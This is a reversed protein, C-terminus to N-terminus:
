QTVRTDGAMTIRTDGAETIRVDSTPPSPGGGGGMSRNMLRGCNAVFYTPQFLGGGGGGGGSAAASGRWDYLSPGQNGRGWIIKM